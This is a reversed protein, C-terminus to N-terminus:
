PTRPPMTSLLTPMTTAAASGQPSNALARWARKGHARQEAQQRSVCPSRSSRCGAFPYASSHRDTHLFCCLAVIIACMCQRRPKQPDTPPSAPLHTGLVNVVIHDHRLHPPLSAASHRQRTPIQHQTVRTLRHPSIVAFLTPNHLQKRTFRSRSAGEKETGRETLKEGEVASPAGPTLSGYHGVDYTRYTTRRHAKAHSLSFHQATLPRFDTTSVVSGTRQGLCKCRV